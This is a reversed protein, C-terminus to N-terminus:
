FLNLYIVLVLSANGWFPCEGERLVQVTCYRFALLALCRTVKLVTLGPSNARASLSSNTKGYLVQIRDYRNHCCVDNNYFSIETIIAVTCRLFQKWEPPFFVSWVWAFICVYNVRFTFPPKNIYVIMCLSNYFVSIWQIYGLKNYLIVATYVLYVLFTFSTQVEIHHFNNNKSQRPM